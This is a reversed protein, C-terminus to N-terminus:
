ACQCFGSQQPRQADPQDTCHKATRCSSGPGPPKSLHVQAPDSCVCKCVD